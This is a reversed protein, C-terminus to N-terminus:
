DFVSASIAKQATSKSPLNKGGKGARNPNKGLRYLHLHCLRGNLLKGTCERVAKLNHEPVCQLCHVKIRKLNTLSSDNLKCTTSECGKLTHSNQCARCEAKIAAKISM